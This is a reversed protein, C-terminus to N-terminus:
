RKLGASVDSVASVNASNDCLNSPRHSPFRAPYPTLMANKKSKPLLRVVAVYDLVFRAGFIYIM